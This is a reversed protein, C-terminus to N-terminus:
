VIKPDVVVVQLGKLMARDIMDQTGRGGPFAVVYDPMGHDLMQQNRIPGAAKGYTDWDAPYDRVAIARSIAWDEALTDVGRAAGHVVTTIPDQRHLDDLTQFLYDADTFDRGGCVLVIM